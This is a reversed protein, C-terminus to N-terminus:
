VAFHCAVFHGSHIERYAPAEASCRERTYRCRSSFVCGAPPNAPSPIDGELVIRERASEAQPDPVPVASILAQTYPHLPRACITDSDALEMIKGLYMVAIRDSIHRVMSLDHAIFLYTLKLREQVDMLLNVIQAQISVDLSAIAEDCVVLEPELVLARAIGIRQRQGGSFEHPYRGRFHAPLGVLEMIEAVRANIEKRSLTGQIQLPEAVINEVSMRPNLSAYPDQFIMQLRQKVAKLQKGSMKSLDEGEILVAGGTLSQLRLLTRGVTTKGSGSEGVLGLTEGRRIQFSVGDVAKVAGSKRSFLGKQIPFHTRMEQVDVLVDGAMEVDTMCGDKDQQRLALELM